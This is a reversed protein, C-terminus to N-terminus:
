TRVGATADSPLAPPAPPPSPGEESPAAAEHAGDAAADRATQFNLLPHLVVSTASAREPM